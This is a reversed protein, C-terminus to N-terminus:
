GLAFTATETKAPASVDIPLMGQTTVPNQKTSYMTDTREAMPPGTPVSSVGGFGYLVLSTGLFAVSLMGVIRLKNAHKKKMTNRDPVEFPPVRNDKM